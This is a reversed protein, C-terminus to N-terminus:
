RLHLAVVPRLMSWGLLGLMVGSALFMLDGGLHDGREIVHHVQLLHHDITGEVLNFAGWGLLMAGVLTATPPLERAFRAARWLLAVGTATMAWTFAHFLGDWFMNVEIAVVDSRGIVASLMNHTQLIQHFLIGDVFGGMGVGIVIGAVVVRRVATGQDARRPTM